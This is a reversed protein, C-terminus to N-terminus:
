VGRQWQRELVDQYSGKVQWRSVNSPLHDIAGIDYRLHDPLEGAIREECDAQRFEKVRVILDQLWRPVAISFPASANRSQTPILQDISM